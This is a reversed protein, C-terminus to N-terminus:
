INYISKTIFKIKTSQKTKRYNFFVNKVEDNKFNNNDYGDFGALYISRAKGSNAIALSYSLALSNPIICNKKKFEFINKKVQLGYDLVKSGELSKKVRQSFKSFPTILPIKSKIFKNSEILIRMTHCMVRYDVLKSDVSFNNNLMLVIPKKKNIFKKIKLKKEKLKPSSGLILVDKDKFIKEPEWKGINKQRYFGENYNILDTAFKQGGIKKLDNLNKIIKEAPLENSIMEQIFSPHIGWLGALYYFSNTGWMYKSHLSDFKQKILKLLPLFDIQRKQIKEFEFIALETKTNGPGRGMGLVTTDIWRVGKKIAILSNKLAYGLNDHTHIGLDKKWNLRITKIIKITQETRLSGLSDAFYIARPNIKKVFKITKSIEEKKKESIQMLNIIIKYGLKKLDLSLNKLVGIEYFHAAIRILSIKSNKKKKFYLGVYNKQYKGNKIFDGANIMIAIKLKKPISLSNLYDDHCYALKGKNKKLEIFRFGIEVYDVNIANMAELYQNVLNKKFNWNTYYGGDRLTCDIHYIKKINKNAM